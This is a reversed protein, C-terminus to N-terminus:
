HVLVQHNLDEGECEVGRLNAYAELPEVMVEPHEDLSLLIEDSQERHGGGEAGVQCAEYKILCAVGEQGLALVGEEEVGM